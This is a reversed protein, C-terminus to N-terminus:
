IFVAQPVDNSPHLRHGLFVVLLGRPLTSCQRVNDVMRYGCGFCVHRLMSTLHATTPQPNQVGVLCTADGCWLGM